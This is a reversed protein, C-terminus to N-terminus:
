YNVSFHYHCVGFLKNEDNKIYLDVINKNKM